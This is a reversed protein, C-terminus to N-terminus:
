EKVMDCVSDTRATGNALDRQCDKDHPERGFLEGLASFYKTKYKKGKKQWQYDKELQSKHEAHFM